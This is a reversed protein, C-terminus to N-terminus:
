TGAGALMQPGRPRAHQPLGAGVAEVVRLPLEVVVLRTGAGHDELTLEVLTADEGDRWWRLALRRAELVEEVVAARETGDNWRLTGRTGTAVELEVQDALWGELGHADALQAWVQERAHPLLVERRVVQDHLEM